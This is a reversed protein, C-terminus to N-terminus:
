KTVHSKNVSVLQLNTAFVLASRIHQWNQRIYEDLDLINRGGLLPSIRHKPAMWSKLIFADDFYDFPTEALVFQGVLRFSFM